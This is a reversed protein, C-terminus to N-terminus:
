ADFGGTSFIVTLLLVGIVTSALAWKRARESAQHAGPVDGAQWRRNVRTAYYISVAGLPLVFLIASLIAWTLHTQPKEGVTGAYHPSNYQSEPSPGGYVPAPPGWQPPGAQAPPGWQAPPASPPAGYPQNWHAPIEDPRLQEQPPGIQESPQAWYPTPPQDGSTDRPGSQDAPDNM